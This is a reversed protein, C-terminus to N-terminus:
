LRRWCRCVKLVCSVKLKLLVAKERVSEADACKGRDMLFKGLNTLAVCKGELDKVEESGAQQKSLAAEWSECGERFYQEAEDAFHRLHFNWQRHRM